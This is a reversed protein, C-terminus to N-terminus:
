GILHPRVKELDVSDRIKMAAVLEEPPVLDPLTTQFSPFGIANTCGGALAFLALLAPTAHGSAVLAAVSGAVVVSISNTVILITRRRFRDAWAGGVPSLIATPLFGAAAVVGSWSAKSTDAVYYSLATTEMWTGVNSVM